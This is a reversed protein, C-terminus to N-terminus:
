GDAALRTPRLARCLDGLTDLRDTPALDLLTGLEQELEVVLEAVALSDVNLDSLRLDFTYGGGGPSPDVLARRAARDLEAEGIFLADSVRPEGDVM